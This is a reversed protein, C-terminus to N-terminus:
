PQVSSKLESLLQQAPEYDPALTVTKEVEVLANKIDGLGQYAMAAQFHLDSFEDNGKLGITIFRLANKYEKLENYTKISQIQYWLMRSPWGINQSTEFATKAKEYEGLGFYSTGINFWAYMDRPNKEADQQNRTIANQYMTEEDWDAGIIKKVIKEQEPLYVPLYEYNFVKWQNEEFTKYPYAVGTGIFSDDAIFVGKIDDYGRLLALHGIDENPHAWDEIIVYFGNAILTKITAITGGYLLKSSIHYTDNLYDRIEYTFTNKDWSHKHLDSRVTKQNTQYGFHELLMM